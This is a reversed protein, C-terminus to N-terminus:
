PMWGKLRSYEEYRHRACKALEAMAQPPESELSIVVKECLDATSKAWIMRDADNWDHWNPDEDPADLGLCQAWSRIGPMTGSTWKGLNLSILAYDGRDVILEIAIDSRVMARFLGDEEVIEREARFGKKALWSTLEDMIQLIQMTSM